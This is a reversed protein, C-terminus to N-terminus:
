NNCDFCVSRTEYEAYDYISCGSCFLNSCYYCKVLCDSCQFKNCHICSRIVALSYPRKCQGCDGTQQALKEQALRNAKAEKAHKAQVHQGFRLLMQTRGVADMHGGTNISKLNASPEAKYAEGYGYAIDGSEDDSDSKRKVAM